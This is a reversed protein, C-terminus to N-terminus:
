QETPSPDVQRQKATAETFRGLDGQRDMWRLLEAKLRALTQAMRPAAALDHMEYPDGQLDYLEHEPRKRYRRAQEGAFPDGAAGARVWSLYAPLRATVTNQFESEANLNWILRYRRDRVTRIGYAEPGSYIGRSTQVGYVYDNHEIAEGRLVRAFSRGDIDLKTTDGGALEVFTPLIDVYQLLASSAAGARVQGPWRVIAASRLGTDYCTWKCHPFNSGQESIFIVFTDAALGLRDLGSLMRGFNADMYSIEAYYRTMSERTEPTDVFFPPLSLEAADYASADGRNWPMHPQNNAVILAWPRDKREAIYELARDVDLDPGDEGSDHERGGLHEFPFNEAPAYHKKGILAVDYGLPRLYHPLSRVHEYVRSHNPHAGNRVPHIGTYLAMRTPACMPASNFFYRFRMGQSALLDLHPTRVDRNGYAGLDSYTMDDAFLLLFNPQRADAAHLYGPAFAALALLLAPASRLVRNLWGNHLL